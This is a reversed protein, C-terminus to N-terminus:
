DKPTRNEVIGCALREGLIQFAYAAQQPVVGNGLIRLKDVWNSTGDVLRGMAPEVEWWSDFCGGWKDEMKGSFGTIRGWEKSSIPRELGQSHTDCVNSKIFRNTVKPSPKKFKTELNGIKNSGFSITDSVNAQINCSEGFCSGMRENETNAVVRCLGELDFQRKPSPQKNENWRSCQTHSDDNKVGMLFWRRRRHLAGVDSAAVVCWSAHYGLKDLDLVISDLRMRVVNPVNELFLFGPRVEGIIRVFDPWLDRPDAEGMQKGATSYPQCPFGGSIWDVKGRWPKGDFTKVNSWIPAVDLSGEEMKKILHQAAFAEGEVYCVTRSRPFVREIGLELGGYGACLALGNM